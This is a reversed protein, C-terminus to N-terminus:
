AQPGSKPLTSPCTPAEETPAWQPSRFARWAARLRRWRLTWKRRWRPLAMYTSFEEGARSLERLSAAPGQGGITSERVGAYHVGLVVTGLMALVAVQAGADCRFWGARELAEQYETRMEDQTHAMYRCLADFAEAVEEDTTLHSQLVLELEPWARGQLRKFVRGMLEKMNHALDRNASYWRPDDASMRAQLSM